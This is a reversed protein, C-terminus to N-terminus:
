STHSVFLARDGIILAGDSSGLMQEIDPGMNNVGSKIQQSKTHKILAVSSSSDSPLAISEMENLPKSGFLVSGVEGKSCIGLNPLLILRGLKAYDAALIPCHHLREKTPTQLGHHRLQYYMGIRVLQFLPDCNM